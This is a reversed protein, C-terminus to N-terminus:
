SLDDLGVTDVAPPVDGEAACPQLCEGGPIGTAAMLAKFVVGVGPQHGNVFLEAVVRLRATYLTKRIALGLGPYVACVLAATQYAMVVRCASHQKLSVRQRAGRLTLRAAKCALGFREIPRRRLFLPVRQQFGRRVGRLPVVVGHAIQELQVVGLAVALTKLVADGALLRLDVNHHGTTFARDQHILAGVVRRPLDGGFAGAIAYQRDRRVRLRIAIQLTQSRVTHTRMPGRYLVQRIGMVTHTVDHTNQVAGM